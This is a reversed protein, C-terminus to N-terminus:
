GEAPTRELASALYARAEARKRELIPGVHAMGRALLREVQNVGMRESFKHHELKLTALLTDLRSGMNARDFSVFPTGFIVSFIAGHFSDTFHLRANRVL